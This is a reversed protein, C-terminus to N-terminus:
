KKFDMGLLDINGWEGTAENFKRADWELGTKVDGCVMNFGIVNNEMHELLSKLDPCEFYGCTPCADGQKYQTGFTRFYRCSIPHTDYYDRLPDANLIQTSATEKAAWDLRSSARTEKMGDVTLMVATAYYSDEGDQYCTVRGGRAQLITIPNLIAPGMCAEEVLYRALDRIADPHDPHLHGVAARTLKGVNELVINPVTPLVREAHHLLCRNSLANRLTTRVSKLQFQTAREKFEKDLMKRGFGAVVKRVKTKWDKVGEFFNEEQLIRVQQQWLVPEKVPTTHVCRRLIVISNNRQLLTIRM